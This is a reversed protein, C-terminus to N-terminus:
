RFCWRCWYYRQQHCGRSVSLEEGQGVAAALRHRQCLPLAPPPAARRQYACWSTLRPCPDSGASFLFRLGVQQHQHEDLPWDCHHADTDVCVNADLLTHASACDGSIHGCAIPGM